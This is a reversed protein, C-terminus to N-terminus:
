TKLELNSPQKTAYNHLFNFSPQNPKISCSHFEFIDGRSKTSESGKHKGKPKRCQLSSEHILLFFIQMSKKILGTLERDEKYKKQESAYGSGEKIKTPLLSLNKSSSLSEKIESALQVEEIM